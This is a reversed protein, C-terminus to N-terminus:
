FENTFKQMLLNSCSKMYERGKDNNAIRGGNIKHFEVLGDIITVRCFSTSSLCSSYSVEKFFNIGDVGYVVYFDEKDTDTRKYFQADKYGVYRNVTKKWEYANYESRSSQIVQEATVEVVRM